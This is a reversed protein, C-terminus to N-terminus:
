KEKVTKLFFIKRSGSPLVCEQKQPFSRLIFLFLDSFPKHKTYGFNNCFTTNLPQTEKQINITENQPQKKFVLGFLVFFIMIITLKSSPIQYAKTKNKNQCSM